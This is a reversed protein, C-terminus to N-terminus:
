GPSAEDCPWPLIAAASQPTAFIVGAAALLSGAVILAGFILKTVRPSFTRM